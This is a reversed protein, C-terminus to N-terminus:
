QFGSTGRTLMTHVRADIGMGRCGHVGHISGGELREVQIRQILGPSVTPKQLILNLFNTRLAGGRWCLLSRHRDPLHPESVSRGPMTVFRRHVPTGSREPM